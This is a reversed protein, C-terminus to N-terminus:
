RGDVNEIRQMINTKQENSLEQWQIIEDITRKCGMCIENDLLCSHKDCPSATIYEAVTTM